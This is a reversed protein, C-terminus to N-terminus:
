HAVTALTGIAGSGSEPARRLLFILSFILLLLGGVAAVTAGTEEVGVVRSINEPRMLILLPAVCILAASRGMWPLIAILPCLIVMDYVHLVVFAAVTSLSLLLYIAAAEVPEPRGTKRWRLHLATMAVLIVVCGILSMVLASMDHGTAAQILNAVGTMLRPTNYAIARYDILNHMLGGITAGVGGIALGPISALVTIGVGWATMRIGSRFFFPIVCCLVLGVHPKLMVIAMGIGGIVPAQRGIGWAILAIGFLIIFSTQGVVLTSGSATMLGLYAVVAATLVLAGESTRGFLRGLLAAGALSLILGTANWLLLGTQYPVWSYPMMVPLAHPPYPWIMVPSWQGFLAVGMAEYHDQLYPNVGAAWTRGALWFLKFDVVDLGGRVRWVMNAFGLLAAFILISRM